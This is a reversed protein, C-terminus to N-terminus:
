VGEVGGGGGGGGGGTGGGGRVGTHPPFRDFHVSKKPEEYHSVFVSM